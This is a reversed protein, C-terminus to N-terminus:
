GTSEVHDIMARIAARHAELYFTREESDLAEAGLVTDFPYSLVVAPDLDGPQEFSSTARVRQELDDFYMQNARLVSADTRGPAHAYLVVVPDLAIMRRLSARFAQMDAPNPVFPLPWEAADGTFLTRLEPIFVALHDPEHGPTPLLVLHLDGGDLVTEHEILITAPQLRVGAFTSADETQKRALEAQADKSLLLDPGRRHGIIPAPWLADPGVLASNGWAHDWHAHTNVALLQRDPEVRARLADLVTTLASPSFLTDILVVYNTTVVGYVTV